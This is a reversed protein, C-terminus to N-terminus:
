PLDYYRKVEEYKSYDPGDAASGMGRGGAQQSSSMIRIVRAQAYSEGPGSAKDIYLSVLNTAYGMSLRYQSSSAVGFGPVFYWRQNGEYYLYVFWAAKDMTDKTTKVTLTSFTSALNQVGYTYQTVSANGAIGQPGQPGPDGKPGEPGTDGKKCSFLLLIASFTLISLIPKM